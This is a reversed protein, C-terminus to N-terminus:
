VIRTYNRLTVQELRSTERTFEQPGAATSEPSIQLNLQHTRSFPVIKSASKVMASEAVTKTNLSPEVADYYLDEEEGSCLCLREPCWDFHQM